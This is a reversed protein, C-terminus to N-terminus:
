PAEQYSRFWYVCEINVDYNRGCRECYLRTDEPTPFDCGDKWDHDVHGCHPCQPWHENLYVERM